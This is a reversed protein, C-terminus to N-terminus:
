RVIHGSGSVLCVITTGDIDLFTSITTNDEDKVITDGSLLTEYTNMPSSCQASIAIVTLGDGGSDEGCANFSITIFILTLILIINKM